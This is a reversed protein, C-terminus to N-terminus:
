PRSEGLASGRRSHDFRCAEGRLAPVSPREGVPTVVCRDFRGRACLFPTAGADILVRTRTECGVEDFCDRLEHCSRPMFMEGDDPRDLTLQGMAGEDEHLITECTM